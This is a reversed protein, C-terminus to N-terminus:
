EATDPSSVISGWKSKVRALKDKIHSETVSPLRPLDAKLICLPWMGEAAETRKAVPGKCESPILVLPVVGGLKM